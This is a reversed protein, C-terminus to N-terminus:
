AGRPGDDHTPRAPTKLGLANEARGFLRAWWPRPASPRRDEQELLARLASMRSQGDFGDFDVPRAFAEGTERATDQTSM